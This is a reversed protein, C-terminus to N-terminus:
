ASRLSLLTRKLHERLDITLGAEYLHGSAVKEAFIIEAKAMSLRNSAEKKVWSKLNACHFDYGGKFREFVTVGVALNHTAFTTDIDNALGVWAKFRTLTLTFKSPNRNHFSIDLRFEARNCKDVDRRAM